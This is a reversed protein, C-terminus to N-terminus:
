LGARHGPDPGRNGAREQGSRGQEAEERAAVEVLRPHPPGEDRPQQDDRHRDGAGAGQRPARRGPRRDDPEGAQGQPGSQGDAPGRQAVRRQGVRLAERQVEAREDGAHRHEARAARSARDLGGERQPDEREDDLAERLAQQWAEERELLATGRRAPQQLRQRVPVRHAEQGRHPHQEAYADGAVDRARGPHAGGGGRGRRRQGRAAVQGQRAARDEGHDDAEDQEGEQLRHPRLQTGHRDGPHARRRRDGHRGAEVPDASQLSRGRGPAGLPEDHEGDEEEGGRGGGQRDGAAGARPRGAAHGRAGPPAEGHRAREHRDADHHREADQEGLV